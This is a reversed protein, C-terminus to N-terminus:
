WSLWKEPTIEILQTYRTETAVDWDYKKRFADVAAQPWPTEVIQAFGQCIIPHSGNELALCANPNKRLNKGKVSSPEICIYLKEDVSVFWVPVLHPKGNPRVTAIWINREKGLRAKEM